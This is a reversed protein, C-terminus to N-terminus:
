EEELGSILSEFRENRKADRLSAESATEQLILKRARAELGSAMVRKRVQELFLLDGESEDPLWKDLQHKLRKGYTPSVGNTTLTVTLHGKTLTLPFSFDSLQPNDALYVLQHAYRNTYLSEHLLPNDTALLLFDSAFRTGAIVKEKVWKIESTETYRQLSPHLNPAHVTVEKIGAKLLKPVHRAAVTGAGIVTATKGELKLM